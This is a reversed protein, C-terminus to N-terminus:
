FTSTGSIVCDLQYMETCGRTGWREGSHAVAGDVPGVPAHRAIDQVPDLFARVQGLALQVPSGPVVMRIPEPTSPLAFHAKWDLGVPFWPCLNRVFLLVRSPSVQPSETM